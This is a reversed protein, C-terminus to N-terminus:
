QKAHQGNKEEYRGDHSDYLDESCANTSLEHSELLDSMERIFSGVNGETSELKSNIDTNEKELDHIKHTNTSLQTAQSVRLQLSKVHASDGVRNRNRKSTSRDQRRLQKLEKEKATLKVQLREQATQRQEVKGSMTKYKRKMRVM